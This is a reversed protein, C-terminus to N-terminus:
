ALGLDANRTPATKEIWNEASQSSKPNSLSASLTM